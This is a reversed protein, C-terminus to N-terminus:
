RRPSVGAWLKTLAAAVRYPDIVHSTRIHSAGVYEESSFNRFRRSLRDRMAVWSEHSLSGYSYYVPGSFESLREVPVSSSAFARVFARIGAPRSAMWPPAPQPPPQLPTGERLQMGLFAKMMGDTPLDLMPLFVSRIEELGEPSFDCAPEDVALSLVRNGHVATYALAVAGGGSHAYLHFRDFGADDAAQDLGRVELEISHDDPIDPASRYVELEKVVPRTADGLAALLPAYRLAGPMLIGPLFITPEQM